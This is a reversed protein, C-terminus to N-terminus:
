FQLEVAILRNDLPIATILFFNSTILFKFLYLQHVTSWGSKKLFNFGLLKKSHSDTLENKEIRIIIEFKEYLKAAKPPLHITSHSYNQEFTGIHCLILYSSCYARQTVRVYLYSQSLHTHLLLNQQTICKKARIGKRKDEFYM